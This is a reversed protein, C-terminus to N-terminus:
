TRPATTRGRKLEYKFGAWKSLYLWRQIPGAGPSWRHVAHYSRGRRGEIIWQEGDAGDGEPDRSPMKWFDIAKVAESLTAWEEATLGKAVRRITKGAKREEANVLEVGTLSVV